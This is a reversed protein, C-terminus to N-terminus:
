DVERFPKKILSKIMNFDDKNICRSLLLLVFYIIMFAIGVLLLDWINTIEFSYTAFYTVAISVIGISFIKIQTWSLPSIGAYIKGYIWFLLTLTFLSFATSLAAGEIGYKPVTYLNLLFNLAGSILLTYLIFRTKGIVTLLARSTSSFTYSFFMGSSLIMLAYKGEEYPKGFLILLVSSAFVFMFLWIPVNMLTIFKNSNNYTLSFDKEKKEAYLGTLVPIFLGLFAFPIIFLLQATPVAANYIGIESSTRFFGLMITDTITLFLNIIGVFALPWSIKLIESYNEIIKGVKLKIVIRKIVLFILISASIIIALNFAIAIGLLNMGLYLFLLTLLIKAINEILNKSFIEYEIKKYSRAVGSALESLANFPLVFAFILLIIGLGEKKFVNNALFNSSFGLILALFLSSIFVIKAASYITGKEKEADKKGRYYSIFRMAGTNIGLIALTLIFTYISLGLSFLGYNETGAKAIILRYVYGLLKSIFLGLFILWAGRAIKKFNKDYAM